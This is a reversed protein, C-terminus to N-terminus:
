PGQTEASRRSVKADEGDAMRDRLLVSMALLWAAYALQLVVLVTVVRLAIWGASHGQSYAMLGFVVAAVLNVLSFLVLRM